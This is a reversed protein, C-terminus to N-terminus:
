DSKSVWKPLVSLSTMSLESKFSRADSTTFLPKLDVFASILLSIRWPPRLTFPEGIVLSSFALSGRYVVSRSCPLYMTRLTPFFLKEKTSTLSHNLKGDCRM